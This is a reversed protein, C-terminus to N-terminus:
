HYIYRSEALKHEGQIGVKRVLVRDGELIAYREKEDYYKKYKQGKKAAQKHRLVPLHGLKMPTKSTINQRIEREELVGLM